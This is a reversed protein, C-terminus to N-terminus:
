SGGAVRVGRRGLYAEVVRPDRMVEEPMGTIVERGQNLVMLRGSLSHLLPLVHEIILVSVGLKNIRRVLAATEEVEPKTLGSAPEDLLLLRPQTALASALMLRKKDFVALEGAPRGYERESIGVFALADLTRQEIAGNDPRHQGYVAGLMANDFTSLTDFTTEKQFTRAIGARCIRNAAMHEIPRSEFLIRGLDAQFPISTIVNFLTSKGSGNPGAIGFIEGTRVSFSVDDIARLQGFSKCAGEVILIDDM